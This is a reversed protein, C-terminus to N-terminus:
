PARMVQLIAKRLEQQGYGGRDRMFTVIAQVLADAAKEQEMEQRREIISQEAKVSDSM